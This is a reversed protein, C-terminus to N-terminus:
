MSTLDLIELSKFCNIHRLLLILTVDPLGPATNINTFYLSIYTSIRENDVWFQFFFIKLKRKFTQKWHEEGTTATRVKKKRKKTGWQQRELFSHFVIASFFTFNISSAVTGCMHSLYKYVVSTAFFHLYKWNAPLLMFFDFKENCVSSTPHLVKFM